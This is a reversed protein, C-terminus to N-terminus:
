TYIYHGEDVAEGRKKGGFGLALGQMPSLQLCHLTCVVIYALDANHMISM